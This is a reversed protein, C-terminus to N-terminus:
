IFMLLHVFNYCFMLVSFSRGAGAYNSVHLLTIKTSTKLSSPQLLMRAQLCCTYFKLTPLYAPLCTPLYTPRVGVKFDQAHQKCSLINDPEELKYGEVFIVM